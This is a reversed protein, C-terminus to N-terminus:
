QAVTLVNYIFFSHRHKIIRVEYDFEDKYSDEIEELNHSGCKPCETLEHTITETLENESFQSM